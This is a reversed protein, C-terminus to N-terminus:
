GNSVVESVEDAVNAPRESTSSIVAGDIFARIDAVRYYVRNGVKSYKPGNGLVRRRALQSRGCGFLDAAENCDLYERNEQIYQHLLTTNLMHIRVADWDVANQNSKCDYMSSNSSRPEGVGRGGRGESDLLPLDVLQTPGHLGRRFLFHSVSLMATGKERGDNLRGAIRAILFPRWWSFTEIQKRTDQGFASSTTVCVVGGMMLIGGSALHNVTALADNTSLMGGLVLDYQPGPANVGLGFGQLVSSLVNRSEECGVYGVSCPEFGIM